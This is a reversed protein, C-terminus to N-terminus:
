KGTKSEDRIKEWKEIYAIIDPEQDHIIDYKIDELDDLIKLILEKYQPSRKIIETIADLGKQTLGYEEENKSM